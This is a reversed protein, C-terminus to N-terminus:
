WKVNTWCKDMCTIWFTLKIIICTMKWSSQIATETDWARTQQNIKKSMSQGAEGWKSIIIHVPPTLTIKWNKGNWIQGNIWKEENQTMKKEGKQHQDSLWLWQLMQIIHVTDTPQKNKKPLTPRHWFWFCIFVNLRQSILM